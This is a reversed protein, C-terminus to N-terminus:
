IGVRHKSPFYLLRGRPAEPRLRSPAAPVQPLVTVPQVPRQHVVSDAVLDKFLEVVDVEKKLFDGFNRLVSTQNTKTM